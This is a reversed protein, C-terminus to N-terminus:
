LYCIHILELEGGQDDCAGEVFSAPYCDGQERSSKYYNCLHKSAQWQEGCYVMSFAYDDNLFSCDNRSGDDANSQYYEPHYMSNYVFLWVVGVLAACGFLPKLPNRWPNKM